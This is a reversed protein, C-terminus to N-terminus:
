IILAKQLRVWRYAYGVPVKELNHFIFILGIVKLL